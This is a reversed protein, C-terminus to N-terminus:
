IEEYNKLWEIEETTRLFGYEELFKSKCKNNAGCELRYDDYPNIKNYERISKIISPTLVIRYLPKSKMKNYSDNRNNM